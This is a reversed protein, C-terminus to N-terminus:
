WLFLLSRSFYLFSQGPYINSTLQPAGIFRRHLGRGLLFCGLARLLVVVKLRLRVLTPGEVRTNPPM